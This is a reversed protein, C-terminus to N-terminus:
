SSVPGIRKRTSKTPSSWLAAGLLTLLITTSMTLRGIENVPMEDILTVETRWMLMDTYFVSVALGLLGMACVLVIMRLTLPIAGFSCPRVFLSRKGLIIGALLWYFVLMSLLVVGCAVWSIKHTLSIAEACPDRGEQVDIM